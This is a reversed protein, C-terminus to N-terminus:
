VGKVRSGLQRSIQEWAPPHEASLVAGPQRSGCVFTCHSGLVLNNKFVPQRGLCHRDVRM